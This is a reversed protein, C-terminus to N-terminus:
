VKTKRLDRIQQRLGRLSGVSVPPSKWFLASFFLFDAFMFARLKGAGHIGHEM